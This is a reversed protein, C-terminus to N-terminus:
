FPYYRFSTYIQTDNGRPAGGIGQFTERVTYAAQLGLRMTGFNGKYFSWWTGATLEQISKNNATCGAVTPVYSASSSGGEMDCTSNNYLPNGYGYAVGNVLYSKADTQEIGGYLYLDLDPTVHGTFGAMASVETLPALHGSPGVTVDPLQSTGYRGIGRGVLVDGQFDVWKPVLPVFMNAGIGYGVQTDNERLSAAINGLATATPRNQFFRTLTYLEYHGWATDAAGKVIVDPAIDTTYNATSNLLSSGSNTNSTGLPSSANITQPSELSLGLWYTRDWDKVVRIGPNRTWNFGVVYQADITPPLMETRATMGTRTLTALSWSQGALVHLGLNEWDVNAYVVRTRPAYSNSQNSNSTVGAGLFDLEYYASLKTDADAYGEALLSLRSQRASERFEGHHYNANNGLPAGGFNSTIDATQNRTRYVSEAALFGGPTLTIGKGLTISNDRGPHVGYGGAKAAGVSDAAAAAMPAAGLAAQAQTTSQTTRAEVADLRSQLAQIQARLAKVDDAQDARAGHPVFVSLACAATFLSLRHALRTHRGGKLTSSM